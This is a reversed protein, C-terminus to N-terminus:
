WVGFLRDRPRAANAPIKAQRQKFECAHMRAEPLYPLRSM